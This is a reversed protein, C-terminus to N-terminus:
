GGARQIGVTVVAGDFDGTQVFSGAAPETADLSLSLTEQQIYGVQQQVAAALEADATQYTAHIRDSLQFGADKRMQQIHRVVERALGEAKLEPTIVTDLAVVIGRQTDNTVQFGPRPEAQVLVDEPALEVAEGDVVVAVPQGAAVAAAVAYPDAASLAQRVAPFAKGFRPGLTKNFPLIRYQVLEAEGEALEVRKVNLEDAIVDAFRVLSEAKGAAVVKIGALPQRVKIEAAVRDAHGLSVVARALDMDVLLREDLLSPDAVPWATHHVSEPADSEVGRVLNQYMEEALFPQMPALVRAFTVLVHYLTDLAAPDGEWFRRRNRRVYWNSLDDLFAECAETAAEADYNSLRDTVTAIVQQLRAIIWHDLLDLSTSLYVPLCTSLPGGASAMDGQRGAEKDVQRSVEKDVQRSAEKDVQRGTEKDVEWQPALNAYTVFFSYVNWLPIHFRRRTEDARHYGFLLNTEPKHDLFMWRMVDVGIKEAGEHFDVMNGWSKHMERGDEGLLLAYGFNALFPPKRELVTSMALLSYFWNRFQGPFSESIWDAPFWKRWHEPDSRYGLTSFPVIGADLWPNGVDAIRTAQGGCQPCAITVADIYPRHPAHGAFTEWGAVALAELEHESGVVHFHACDPDDCVWIPLALGWYRKKSIMWDHMNRLWDLEREYGFSPIWRIQDVVEMIQYRLSRDIEEPTLEERPKDYVEGM